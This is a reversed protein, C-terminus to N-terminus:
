GVVSKTTSNLAPTDEVGLSMFLRRPTPREARPQTKAPDARLATAHSTSGSLRIVAGDLNITTETTNESLVCEYHDKAHNANSHEPTEAPQCSALVGFLVLRVVVTQIRRISM